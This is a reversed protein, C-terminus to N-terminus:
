TPCAVEVELGELRHQEQRSRSKPADVIGSMACGGTEMDDHVRDAVELISGKCTGIPSRRKRAADPDERAGYWRASFRRSLSAEM